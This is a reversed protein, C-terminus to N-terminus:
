PAGAKGPRSATFFLRPFRFLIEGSGRAPYLERIGALVDAEFAPRDAESLQALYPRMGTARYWELIAECSPMRQYYVVEWQQFERTLTSLIDFYEEPTRNFFRRVSTIRASWRPTRAVEQLLRHVPQEDQKPVQVALVGGPALLGFLAPILADHGPVWQLCANSFVVDWGGGLSSLDRSVDCLSFRFEPHKRRAQEVMAPSSDVGLVRAGPFRAAAVATSNGPGCGIDLVSDACQLPIRAALDLAPRTREDAYRLYLDPNWDAM